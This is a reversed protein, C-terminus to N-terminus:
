RTPGFLRPRQEYGLARIRVAAAAIMSTWSPRRGAGRSARLVKMLSYTFVGYAAPGDRYDLALEGESCAELILPLYPGRHRLRKRGLEYMRKPLGRLALGRGFRFKTGDGLWAAGNPLRQINWNISAHSPEQWMGLERNWRVDRIDDPVLLGRAIRGAE